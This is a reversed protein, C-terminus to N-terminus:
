RPSRGARRGDCSCLRGPGSASESGAARKFIAYLGLGLLLMLLIAFLYGLQWELEPIHTFNMGYISAIVTARVPDGGM